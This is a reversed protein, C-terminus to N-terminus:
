EAEERFCYGIGYVTHLYPCDDTIKKRLQKVLTDVTRIDGEYDYGWVSNLITERSLVQNSNRIFYTLLSFEKPTLMVSTGEVTLSHYNLNLCLKGFHLEQSLDYIRSLLADMHAKVNRLRVPKTLYKDAGHLLGELENDESNLSTIM